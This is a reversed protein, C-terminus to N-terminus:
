CAQYFWFLLRRSYKVSTRPPHRQPATDRYGASLEAAQVIPYALGMASGIHPPLGRIDAGSKEVSSSTPRSHSHRMSWTTHGSARAVEPWWVDRGAWAGRWREVAEVGKGPRVWLGGQAAHSCAVADRGCAGQAGGGGDDGCASAAALHVGRAMAPGSRGTAIAAPEPQALDRGVPRGVAAGPSLQMARATAAVALLGGAGRPMARAHRGLLAHPRHARQRCAPAHTCSGPPKLNIGVRPEGPEDCDRVV